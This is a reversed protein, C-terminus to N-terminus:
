ALVGSNGEVIYGPGVPTAVMDGVRAVPKVSDHGLVISPADVHVKNAKVIVESAGEINIKGEKLVIKNGYKDSVVVDHDSELPFGNEGIESQCYGGSLCIANNRDGRPFVVLVTTDIEPIQGSSYSGNANMMYLRTWGIEELDPLLLLKVRKDKKRVKSVVAEAIHTIENRSEDIRRYINRIGQLKDSM